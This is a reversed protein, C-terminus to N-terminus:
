VFTYDKFEDKYMMKCTDEILKDLTCVHSQKEYSIVMDPSEEDVVILERWGTLLMLSEGRCHELKNLDRVFGYAWCKECLWPTSITAMPAMDHLLRMMRGNCRGDYVEAAECLNEM